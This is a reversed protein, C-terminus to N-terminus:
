ITPWPMPVGPGLPVETLRYDRRQAELGAGDRADVRYIFAFERGCVRIAEAHAEAYSEADILSYNNARDTNCGYTVFFSAM